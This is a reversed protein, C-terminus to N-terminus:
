KKAKRQYMDYTRLEKQMRRIGKEYDRKLHHSNSRRQAERMKAIQRCFEKRKDDPM